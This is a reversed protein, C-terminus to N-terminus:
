PLMVRVDEVVSSRNVFTLITALQCRLRLAYEDNDRKYTVFSTTLRTFCLACTAKTLPIRTPSPIRSNLRRAFHRFQTIKTFVDHRGMRAAQVDVQSDKLVNIFEVSLEQCELNIADVGILFDVNIQYRAFLGNPITGPCISTGSTVAIRRRRDNLQNVFRAFYAFDKIM